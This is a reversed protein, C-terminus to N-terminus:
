NIANKNLGNRVSPGEPGPFGSDGKDGKMGNVGQPVFTEHSSDASCSKQTFMESDKIQTPTSRTRVPLGPLGTAGKEGSAGPM